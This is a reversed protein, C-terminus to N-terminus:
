ASWYFLLEVTKVRACTRALHKSETETEHAIETILGKREECFCAGSYRGFHAITDIPFSTRNGM